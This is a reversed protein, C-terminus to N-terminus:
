SNPKLAKDVISQAPQQYTKLVSAVAKHGTIIDKTIKSEPFGDFLTYPVTSFHKTITRASDLDAQHKFESEFYNQGPYDELSKVHQMDNFIQAVAGPDKVGKPIFWDSTVSSIYPNAPPADAPASPGKPFRVFGYDMNKWYSTPEWDWGYTMAVDGDKFTTREHYNDPSSKPEVKVVHDVNFLRNVFNYTEEVKPDSLDAKGTSLNVMQASDSTLFWQMMESDWGSFGWTDNKGDGNTDKTAAKALKEFEAWTWKGEKVLEHPDPLNYKKFIAPNYFLGAANVQPTNFAYDQGFFHARGVINKYKNMDPAYSKLPMIQGKSAATLAWDYQLRVADAFPKGSLVTTTFKKLFDNFPVTVFKIKVNYEKEVKAEQAQLEKGTASKDAQPSLDWWAAFTITRGKMDIKKASTTTDDKSKSATNSSSDNSAAQQNQDAADTSNSTSTGNNTSGSGTGSSGCATLLAILCIIFLVVLVRKFRNRM